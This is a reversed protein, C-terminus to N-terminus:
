FVLGMHIDFSQGLGEQGARSEWAAESTGDRLERFIGHPRQPHEDCKGWLTLTM